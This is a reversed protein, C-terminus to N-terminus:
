GDAAAGIIMGIAIEVIELAKPRDARGAMTDEFEKQEDWPEVIAGAMVHGLDMSVHAMMVSSNAIRVDRAIGIVMM